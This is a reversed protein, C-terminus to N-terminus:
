NNFILGVLKEQPIKEIASAIQDKTTSGSSVVLAAYDCVESLIRADATDGIAPSDLVIYRDSYRTKLEDVFQAMRYSTYYEPGIETATGAPILRLRPIGTAYVVQEISISPDRLFDSFGLDSGESLYGLSPAYLNCDVVLATKRHDLAISAALNTSVFTSGSGECVSTVLLCFNKKGAKQILKTRIERFVNLVRKDRMQPHIIKRGDLDDEALKYIEAMRRIQQQSLRESAEDLVILNNGSANSSSHDQQDEDLDMAM